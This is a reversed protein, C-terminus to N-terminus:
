PDEVLDEVDQVLAIVLSLEGDDGRVEAVAGRAKMRNGQLSRGGPLLRERIPNRCPKTRAEVLHASVHTEIAAIIPLARELGVQLASSSPPERSGRGALTARTNVDPQRARNLLLSWSAVCTLIASKIEDKSRAVSRRAWAPEGASSSGRGMSATSVTKMSSRVHISTRSAMWAPLFVTRTAEPPTSCFPGYRTVPLCLTTSWAIVSDIARFSPFARTAGMMANTGSPSKSGGVPCM